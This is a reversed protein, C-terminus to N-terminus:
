EKMIYKLNTLIQENHIFFSEKSQKAKFFFQKAEPM